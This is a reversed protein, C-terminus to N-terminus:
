VEDKLIKLIIDDYKETVRSWNKFYKDREKRLSWSIYCMIPFGLGGMLILYAEILNKLEM